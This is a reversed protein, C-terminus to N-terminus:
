FLLGSERAGEAVARVRGHYRYQGRDFVVKTVGQEQARKGILKGVEHAVAIKGKGGSPVERSWASVLTTGRADDILQAHIHRLSRFVSLRPRTGRGSDHAQQVIKVRTRRARRIITETKAM